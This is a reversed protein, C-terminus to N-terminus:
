PSPPAKGAPLQREAYAAMARALWDAFGPEIAEYRAVFEPHSTYLEGLRTYAERTPAYDWAVAVWTHHRDLLRDLLADDPAIGAAVGAALDGEIQSLEDMQARQEDPTMKAMRNRGAEIKAEGAAGYKDIIWAEYQAQKQPEFGQYLDTDAMAAGEELDAITRDITELLRRYRETQAVIAHRQRRLAAVRDFGPADLVAVIDALSLGLERHFLVQQLRLLEERGYQRYGNEGVAAPRLLGIADYHHLTRISVGSLRALEGVSYTSLKADNRM